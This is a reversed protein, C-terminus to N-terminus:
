TRAQKNANVRQIVDKTWDDEGRLIKQAEEFSKIGHKSNQDLVEMAFTLSKNVMDLNKNGTSEKSYRDSSTATLLDDKLQSTLTQGGRKESYRAELVDKKIIDKQVQTLPQSDLWAQEESYLKAIAKRTDIMQKAGFFYSGDEPKRAMKIEYNGSAFGDYAQNAFEQIEEDTMDIEQRTETM